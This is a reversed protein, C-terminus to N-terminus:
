TRSKFIAANSSKKSPCLKVDCGMVGEGASVCKATTAVRTLTVEIATELVVAEDVDAVVVTTEVVPRAIAM